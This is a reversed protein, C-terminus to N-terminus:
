AFGSKTTQASIAPTSTGIAYGRGLIVDLLREGPLTEGSDVELPRCPVPDDSQSDFLHMGLFAPV